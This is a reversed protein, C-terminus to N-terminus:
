VVEINTLCFFKELKFFGQDDTVTGCILSSDSSSLLTVNAYGVPIFRADIIRGATQGFVSTKIILLFVMFLIRKNMVIITKVFRIQKWKTAFIVCIM